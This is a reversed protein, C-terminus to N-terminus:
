PFDLSIPEWNPNYIQTTWFLSEGAYQPKPLRSIARRAALLYERQGADFQYGEEVAQWNPASLPYHGKEHQYYELLANAGFTVMEILPRNSFQHPLMHAAAFDMDHKVTLDVHHLLVFTALHIDFWDAKKIPM